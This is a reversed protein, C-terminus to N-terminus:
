NQSSEAPPFLKNVDLVALLQGDLKHVGSIFTRAPRSVNDPSPELSGPEVSIIDDVHDVLLSVPGESTRIVLNMPDDTERRPMGMRTRLDVATVIQGRLNILGLVSDPSRPVPTMEQRVLVERVQLVDVGLYIDDLYFTTYQNSTKM